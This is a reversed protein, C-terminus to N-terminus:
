YGYDVRENRSPTSLVKNASDEIFKTTVRTYLQTTTLEEHGLVEQIVRIPMGREMWWTAGSHRFLHPNLKRGAIGEYRGVVYRVGRTSIGGYKSQILGGRLCDMSRIYQDLAVRVPQFIPINRDKGGKGNVIILRRNVQDIQNASLNCLESVRLCQFFLMRFILDDRISRSNECLKELTQISIIEPLKKKKM